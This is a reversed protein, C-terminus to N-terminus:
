SIKSFVLVLIIESLGIFKNEFSNSRRWVTKQIKEQESQHFALPFESIMRETLLYGHLSFAPLFFAGESVKEDDNASSVIQEVKEASRPQLILPELKMWKMVLSILEIHSIQFQQIFTVLGGRVSYQRTGRLFKRHIISNKIFARLAKLNSADRQSGM